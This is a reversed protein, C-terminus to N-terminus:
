ATLTFYFSAGRNVEAKAWIRAGHRNIIRQVTALSVRTGEFEENNHVRKFVGFLKDASKMKFGTDNDQVHYIM